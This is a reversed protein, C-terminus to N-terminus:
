FKCKNLIAKELYKPVTEPFDYSIGGDSYVMFRNGTWGSGCCGSKGEYDLWGGYFPDGKTFEYRTATVKWNRVKFVM